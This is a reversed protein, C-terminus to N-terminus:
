TVPISRLDGLKTNIAKISLSQNVEGTNKSKKIAKKCNHTYVTANKSMHLSLLVPESDTGYVEKKPNLHKNRPM